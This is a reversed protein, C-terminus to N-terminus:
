QNADCPLAEHHWATVSPVSTDIRNVFEHYIRIFVIDVQIYYPKFGQEDSNWGPNMKQDLLLRM